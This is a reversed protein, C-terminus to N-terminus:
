GTRVLSSSRWCSSAATRIIHPRRRHQPITNAAWDSPPRTSRAPALGGLGADRARACCGVHWLRRYPSDAFTQHKWKPPPRHKRLKCRDFPTVLSCGHPFLHRSSFLSLGAGAFFLRASEKAIADRSDCRLSADCRYAYDRAVFTEGNRFNGGTTESSLEEGRSRSQGISLAAVLGM